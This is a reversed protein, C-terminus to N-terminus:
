RSPEGSTVLWQRVNPHLEANQLAWRVHTREDGTLEDLVARPVDLGRQAAAILECFRYNSHHPRADTLHETFRRCREFFSLTAYEAATYTWAPRLISAVHEYLRELAVLDSPHARVYCFQCVTTNQAHTNDCECEWRLMQQTSSPPGVVYGHNQAWLAANHRAADESPGYCRALEVTDDEPYRFYDRERVVSCGWSHGNADCLGCACDGHSDRDAGVIIVQM